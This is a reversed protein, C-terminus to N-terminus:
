VFLEKKSQKNITLISILYKYHNKVYHIKETFVFNKQNICNIFSELIFYEQRNLFMLFFVLLFNSM